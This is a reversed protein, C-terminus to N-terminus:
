PPTRLVWREWAFPTGGEVMRHTQNLLAHIECYQWVRTGLGVRGYNHTGIQIIPIDKIFGTSIAQPIMEWECGECNIHLLTPKKGGTDQIAYDFTKIHGVITDGKIGGGTTASTTSSEGIYTSQEQLNDASVYFTANTSSLGYNYPIINTRVYEKRSMSIHEKLARYYKPIPEFAHFKCYRYNKLLEHSDYATKHAGVEWVNCGDGDPTNAQHLEEIDPSIRMEANWKAHDGSDWLHAFVTLQTTRLRPRGYGIPLYNSLVNHLCALRNSLDETRSDTNESYSSPSSLRFERDIADFNPTTLPMWSFYSSSSEGDGMFLLIWAM